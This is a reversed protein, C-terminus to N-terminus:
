WMLVKLEPLEDHAIETSIAELWFAMVYDWAQCRVVYVLSVTHLVSIVYMCYMCVYMCVYMFTLPHTYNKILFGMAFSHLM